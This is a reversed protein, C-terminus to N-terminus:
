SRSLASLFKVFESVTKLRIVYKEDGNADYKIILADSDIYGIVYINDEKDVVLDYLSVDIGAPGEYKSVWLEKGANNYKITLYKYRYKKKRVWPGSYSRSESKQGTVIV